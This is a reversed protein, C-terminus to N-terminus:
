WLDRLGREAFEWGGLVNGVTVGIREAPVGGPQGIALEADKMAAGAAAVALHTFRDTKKVFRGPLWDTAVFADAQGAIQCRYESPDFRDIRRVASRGSLAREWLEDPGVGAPTVAGVGSIVVRRM